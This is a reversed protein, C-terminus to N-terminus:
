MVVIICQIVINIELIVLLGGDLIRYYWYRVNFNNKLLVLNDIYIIKQRLEQLEM